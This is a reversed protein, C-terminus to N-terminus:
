LDRGFPEYGYSSLREFGTSTVAVIEESRYVEGSTRWVVPELVMVMGPLLETEEDHEPGLDTEVVPAELPAVGIGHALNLRKITHVPEVATAARVMDAASNGPKIAAYVEELIERWHLYCDHEAPTPKPDHGVIWTRGFDSQYGQWGISTDCVILEGERLQSGAHRAPYNLVGRGNGGSLVITPTWAPEMFVNDVGLQSLRAYFIGTLESQLVGPVLAAQVDAAAMENLQAVARICAIEDVTKLLRASAMVDMASGVHLGAFTSPMMPVMAGTFEDFGVSRCNPFTWRLENALREVGAALDLPFGPHVRDVDVDMWSQDFCSCWVHVTGDVGVAVIVPDYWARSEEVCPKRINVYSQNADTLLVVVDLGRRSMEERVKALRESRLRSFDVDAGVDSLGGEKNM